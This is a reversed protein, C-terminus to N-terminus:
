MLREPVSLASKIHHWHEMKSWLPDFGVDTDTKHCVLYIFSNSLISFILWIFMLTSLTKSMAFVIVFMFILRGTLPLLIVWVISKVWLCLEM